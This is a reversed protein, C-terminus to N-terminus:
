ATFHGLGCLDPLWFKPRSQTTGLQRSSPWQFLAAKSRLRGTQLPTPGYRDGICPSQVEATGVAQAKSRLRGPQLLFGASLIDATRTCLLAKPRLRSRQVSKPGCGDRSCPCDLPCFSWASLM